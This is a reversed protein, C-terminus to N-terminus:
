FRVGAKLWFQNPLDGQSRQNIQTGLRLWGVDRDVFAGYTQKFPDMVAGVAWLKPEPIPKAAEVPIDVGGIIDGDESKVIVSRTEDPNRILAMEVHLPPCELTAQTTSNPPTSKAMTIKQVVEVQSNINSVPTKSQISFKIIREVTAGKPIQFTPKAKADPKKELTISGDPHKVQPAYVEPVPPKPSWFYWAGTLAVILVALLPWYKKFLITMEEGKQIAYEVFEVILTKPYM